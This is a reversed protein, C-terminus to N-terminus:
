MGTTPGSHGAAAKVNKKRGYGKQLRVIVSEPDGKRIALLAMKEAAKRASIKPDTKIMETMREILVVDYDKFSHKSDGAPSHFLGESIGINIIPSRLDNDSISNQLIDLEHGANLLRVINVGVIHLRKRADFGVAHLHGARLKFQLERQIHAGVHLTVNRLAGYSETSWYKHNAKERSPTGALREFPHFHDAHGIAWQPKTCIQENAFWPAVQKSDFASGIRAGNGDVQVHLKNLWDPIAYGSQATGLIPKDSYFHVLSNMVWDRLAMEYNPQEPFLIKWHVKWAQYLTLGVQTAM